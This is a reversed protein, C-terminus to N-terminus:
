REVDRVYDYNVIPSLPFLSRQKCDVATVDEPRGPDRPGRHGGRRLVGRRGSPRFPARQPPHFPLTLM